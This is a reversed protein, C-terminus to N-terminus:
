RRKINCARYYNQTHITSYKTRAVAKGGQFEERGKQYGKGLHIDVM